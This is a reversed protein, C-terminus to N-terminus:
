GNSFMKLLQLVAQPQQNAQALMAQAAQQIINRKALETTAMSYDTDQIRSKSEQTAFTTNKLYETSFQIQSISAGMNARTATVANLALDIIGVSSQASYAYKLDFGVSGLMSLTSVSNEVTTNSTTLPVSPDIGTIWLAGTSDTHNFQFGTITSDAALQTKLNESVTDSLKGGGSLAVSIDNTNIKYSYPKGSIMINVSSGDHMEVDTDLSRLDFSVM